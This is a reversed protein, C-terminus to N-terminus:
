PTSPTSPSDPDSTGDLVLPTGKKDVGYAIPSWPGNPPAHYDSFSWEVSCNSADIGMM